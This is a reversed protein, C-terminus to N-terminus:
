SRLHTPMAVSKIEPVECHRRRRAHVCESRSGQAAGGGPSPTRDILCFIREFEEPRDNRIAPNQGPPPSWDPKDDMRCVPSSVTHGTPKSIKFLFFLHPAENRWMERFIKGRGAHFAIPLSILMNWLRTGSRGVDEELLVPSKHSNTVYFMKPLESCNTKSRTWSEGWFVAPVSNLEKVKAKTVDPLKGGLTCHTLSYYAVLELLKQNACWQDTAGAPRQECSPAAANVVCRAVFIAELGSM